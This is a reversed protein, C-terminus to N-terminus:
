DLFRKAWVELSLVTWMAETVTWDGARVREHWKVIPETRLWGRRSMSPIIEERLYAEFQPKRFYDMLPLGFGEKPRYAFREGFRGSAMRKLAVKTGREVANRRLLRADVLSERPLTRSLEVLGRDLMPVRNEVSHAMMMKDQRILLEVMFTQSEYKLCNAIVDSKGERFIALRPALTREFDAEPRLEKLQSWRMSASYNVFWQDFPLGGPLDYNRVLKPGLKPVHRLLEMLPLARARTAGFFFRPYGGYVEDAGDGSLLVTVHKKAEEALLFLGVGNALNLPYDMHWTARGLNEFFYEYTLPFMHCKTLTKEAAERIWKEESVHAESFTISFSEMNAGFKDRAMATVLSSDIGGSLQCGLKVDSILQSKVSAQLAGNIQETVAAVDGRQAEADPIEWYRLVKFGSSNAVMRYGPRLQYIGKFPTREGATYRFLLQEDLAEPDLERAVGPWELLSKIESAWLLTRGVVTYYLPKIGVHDRAIHLERRALDVIALGFMGNLRSLMGDIGHEMYLYLLRETDSHGRFRYGKSELEADHGFANYVEGNFTIFVRGDASCMPQHGNASLDLIALRNFGVCGEMPAPSAEGPRLEQSSASALSFARIGSDDPGRHRAVHAMRAVVRADAPAGDFSYVGVIGCM